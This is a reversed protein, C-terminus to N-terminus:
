VVGKLATTANPAKQHGTAKTPKTQDHCHRPGQWDGRGGVGVGGGGVMLKGRGAEGMEREREREREARM